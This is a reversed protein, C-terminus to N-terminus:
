QCTFTTEFRKDELPVWGDLGMAKESGAPSQIGQLLWQELHGLTRTKTAQQPHLDTGAVENGHHPFHAPWAAV